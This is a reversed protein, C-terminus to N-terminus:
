LTSPAKRLAKDLMQDYGYIDPRFQLVGDQDVWATWYVLHVPVPDALHVTRQKGRDLAGLLVEQSWQQNEALLYTALEIPEEVRICGHSFTRVRNGFLHRSRAPTDHLYISFPNPFMFKIRGMSNTPGPEQRLRYPFNNASLRSWDIGNPNVVRAEGDTRQVVKIRHATLYSPDQRIRPLMEKAAISHPMLWDPNLVLYTMPASFVPTASIEKGVVIRITKVSQGHEWIELTFGPVNVVLARPEPDRPLWRLRELNLELQRVRAEASVNVAAMTAPGIIGDISLGHQRQFRRVARVLAPDYLDKERPQEASLFGEIHLRTRLTRLCGDRDGPYLKPCNPVRPWGGAAALNRYHALAQRLNTYLPHSPFMSPLVTALQNTALANELLLVLDIKQRTEKRETRDTDPNIRGALVHASYLFFADTLLLDLDVLSDVDPSAHQEQTSRLTTQLVHIPTLHYDTPRLGDQQIAEIAAILVAGPPLLEVGRLWAPQYARREYFTLLALPVRIREGAVTIAPPLPLAELRSRLREQVPDPPAPAAVSQGAEWGQHWTWVTVLTFFARSLWWAFTPFFSASVQKHRQRRMPKM